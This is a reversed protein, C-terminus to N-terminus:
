CFGCMAAPIIFCAMEESTNLLGWGTLWPRRQENAQM